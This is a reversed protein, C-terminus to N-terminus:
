FGDYFDCHESRPHLHFGLWELLSNRASINVIYDCNDHYVGHLLRDIGSRLSHDVHSYLLRHREARQLQRIFRNRLVTLMPCLKDSKMNPQGSRICTSHLLHQM